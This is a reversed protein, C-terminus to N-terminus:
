AQLYRGTASDSQLPEFCDYDIAAEANYMNSKFPLTM